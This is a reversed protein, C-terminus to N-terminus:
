SRVAKKRPRSVDQFAVVRMGKLEGERELLCGAEVRDRIIQNCTLEVQSGDPLECAVNRGAVVARVVVLKKTRKV